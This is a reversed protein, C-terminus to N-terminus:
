RNQMSNNKFMIISCQMANLIRLFYRLHSTYEIDCGYSGYENEMQVMLINGGNIFLHKKMRPLLIDWWTDVHKLFNADSSRM